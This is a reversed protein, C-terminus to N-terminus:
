QTQRHLFPDHALSCAHSKPGLFPILDNTPSGFPIAARELGRNKSQLAFKANIIELAGPQSFPTTKLEQLLKKPHCYSFSVGENM